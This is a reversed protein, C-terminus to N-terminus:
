KFAFPNTVDDAIQKEHTTVDLEDQLLSDTM